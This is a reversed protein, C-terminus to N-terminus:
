CVQLISSTVMFGKDQWMTHGAKHGQVFLHKPVGTGVSIVHRYVLKTLRTEHRIGDISVCANKSQMSGGLGRM